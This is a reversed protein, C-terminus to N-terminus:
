RSTRIKLVLLAGAVFYVICVILMFDYGSNATRANFYDIGIGILRALAAGGATALNALGLYRAEEAKPILDTALAWNASNFLGM